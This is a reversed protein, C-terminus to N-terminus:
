LHSLQYLMHKIWVRQVGTNPSFLSKDTVLIWEAWIRDNIGLIDASPFVFNLCCLKPFGSFCFNEFTQTCWFWSSSENLHLNQAGDGSNRNWYIQSTTWSPANRVLELHHPHQQDLWHVKFVSINFLDAQYKLISLYGWWILPFTWYQRPFDKRHGVCFYHFCLWWCPLFYMFAASVNKDLALFIAVLSHPKEKGLTFVM